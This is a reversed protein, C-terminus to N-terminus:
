ENRLSRRRSSPVYCAAHGGVPPCLTGFNRMSFMDVDVEAVRLNQRFEFVDNFRHKFEYGIMAQDYAIRDFGPEGTYRSVPIRGNPNPLLTGYGPLYQHVQGERRDRQASALVTFSTDITPQWTFSPAIFYRQEKNLDIFTDTDRALGFHPLPVRPQQRLTRLTSLARFAISAGTEVEVEGRRETTPRKSVMNLIGGPSAQGYIGSSPGKLIEIRELGYPETRPQAFTITTDYPLRLGDLYRPAIFGRVKVETDFVSGAGYIQGLTGSTYRIAEGISQAGQQEIQQRPM